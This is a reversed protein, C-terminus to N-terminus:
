FVYLVYWYICLVLSISSFFQLIPFVFMQFQILFFFYESVWISVNECGVKQTVKQATKKMLNSLHNYTLSLNLASSPFKRLKQFVLFPEYFWLQHLTKKKHGWTFKDFMKSAIALYIKPLITLQSPSVLWKTHSLHFSGHIFSLSSFFNTLLLINPWLELVSLVM